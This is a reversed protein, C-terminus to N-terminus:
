KRLATIREVSSSIVYQCNGDNENTSFGMGAQLERREDLYTRWSPSNLVATQVKSDLFMMQRRASVPIAELRPCNALDTLLVNVTAKSLCLSLSEQDITSNNYRISYEFSADAQSYTNKLVQKCFLEITASRTNTAGVDMEPTIGMGCDGEQLCAAAYYIMVFVVPLDEFRSVKTSGNTLYDLFTLYQDPTMTSAASAVEDLLSYCKLFANPTSSTTQSPTVVIAQTNQLSREPKTPPENKTSSTRRVSALTAVKANTTGSALLLLFTSFLSFAVKKTRHLMMVIKPVFSAAFVQQYQVCNNGSDINDFATVKTLPLCVFPSECSSCLVRIEDVAKNHKNDRETLMNTLV